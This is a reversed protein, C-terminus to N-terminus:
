ETNILFLYNKLFFVELAKLKLSKNYIIKKSISSSNTKLLPHQQSWQQTTNTEM